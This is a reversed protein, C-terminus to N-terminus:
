AWRAPCGSFTPLSAAGSVFPDASRRMPIPSVSIGRL